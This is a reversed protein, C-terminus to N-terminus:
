ANITALPQRSLGLHGNDLDRRQWLTLELRKPHAHADWDSLCWRQLDDGLTEDDARHTHGHILVQAKAQKLWQQAMAADVNAYTAQTKKRAESQARLGRATAHRQTLSQSLFTQQWEPTRVQQRFALYETDDLCLADGHSLLFRCAGLDLVTPDDLRHMGTRQMLHEGILFDRNGCLFYLPRKQAARSLTEICTRVFPSDDDDGIWVEFLDGLIFLADASHNLLCDTWAKATAADDAHLHVDSLFAIRQWQANAQIPTM